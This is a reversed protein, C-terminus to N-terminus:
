SGGGMLCLHGARLPLRGSQEERWTRWRRSQWCGGESGRAAWWSSVVWVEGGENGCGDGGVGRRASTAAASM